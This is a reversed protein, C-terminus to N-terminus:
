TPTDSPPLFVDALWADDFFDLAHLDDLFALQSADPRLDLSTQVGARKIAAQEIAEGWISKLRQLNEAFLTHTNRGDVGLGLAMPVARCVDAGRQLSEAIDITELIDSGGELVSETLRLRYVVRLCRLYNLWYHIHLGGHEEPAFALFNDVFLRIAAVCSQLLQAREFLSEANPASGAPEQLEM